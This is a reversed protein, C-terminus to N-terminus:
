ASLRGLIRDAVTAAPREALVITYHNCDPVLEETLPPCLTRARDLMVQSILPEPQNLLGRPARLLHVPCKVEAIADAPGGPRLQDAGDARVADLSARSRFEPEEGEIDYAVYDEVVTTWDDALAPHNRWLDRYAAKTPFTTRLRAMAPGLVADLIQDVDASEPIPLAVGGDILLLGNVRDPHKAAMAAAVWAGMSHGVVLADDVGLHDLVRVCDAAHQDMGHPGSKTSAGRGRLDPAVLTARDGLHDAVFPWEKHSATIGHAALVVPGSSGWRGVLLDGGAAAVEFTEYTM